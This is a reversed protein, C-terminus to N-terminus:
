NVISYNYNVLFYQGTLVIFFDAIYNKGKKKKKETEPPSDATFLAAHPPENENLDRAM